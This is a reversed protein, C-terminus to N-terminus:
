TVCHAVHVDPGTPIDHSKTFCTGTFPHDRIRDIHTDFWLLDRTSQSQVHTAFMLNRTYAVHSRTVPVLGLDVRVRDVYTDISFHFRTSQSRMHTMFMLHRSYTVHVFRSGISVSILRFSFM